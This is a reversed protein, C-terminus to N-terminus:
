WFPRGPFWNAEGVSSLYNFCIYIEIAQEFVVFIDGSSGVLIGPPDLKNWWKSGVSIPFIAQSQKWWKYNVDTALNGDVLPWISILHLLNASEFQGTMDTIWYLVSLKKAAVTKVVFFMPRYMLVFVRPFITDMIDRDHFNVSYFANEIWNQWAIQGFVLM